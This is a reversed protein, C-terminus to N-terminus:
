DEKGLQGYAKYLTWSITNWCWLLRNIEIEQPWSSSEKKREKLQLYRIKNYEIVFSLMM